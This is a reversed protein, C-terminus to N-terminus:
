APGSTVPLRHCRRTNGKGQYVIPLTLLDDATPRESPAMDRLMNREDRIRGVNLNADDHLRIAHIAPWGLEADLIQRMATEDLQWVSHPLSLALRQQLAHRM